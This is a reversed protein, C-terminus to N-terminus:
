RELNQAHAPRCTAVGRGEDNAPQARSTDTAGVQRMCLPSIGSFCCIFFHRTLQLPTVLSLPCSVLVVMVGRQLFRENISTLSGAMVFVNFIKTALIEPNVTGSIRGSRAVLRGFLSVLPNLAM